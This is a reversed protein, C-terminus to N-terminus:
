LPYGLKEIWGGLMVQIIQADEPTLDKKWRGPHSRSLDLSRMAPEPKIQIFACVREVAANTDAVLNELSQELFSDAPISQKITNWTSMIDIYWLAAEQPKNPAWRQKVLSAVVDRPDRYIHLIKAQPTFDLLERAYLINWTNDEVFVQRQQQLLCDAVLSNIFLGFIKALEVKEKPRGYLMKTVRIYSPTGVWTGAYNFEVLSNLLRDVHSNYNPFTSGLSWAFYSKPSILPFARNAASLSKGLVDHLNSRHGLSRLFNELRSLRRDAAYPSWSSSYSNYFDVLGDPDITIRHEFPLAYVTSHLGLLAKTINTGSRGTGGILVIAPSPSSNTM